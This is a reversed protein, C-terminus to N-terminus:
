SQPQTENRLTRVYGQLSRLRSAERAYQKRLKLHDVVLDSGAKVEPLPDPPTMLRASPPETTATPTACGGLLAMLAIAPPTVWKRNLICHPATHRHSGCLACIM